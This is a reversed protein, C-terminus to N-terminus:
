YRQPLSEAIREVDEYLRSAYEFANKEEYLGEEHGKIIEKEVSRCCELIEEFNWGTFELAEDAWDLLSKKYMYFGGKAKDAKSIRKKEEDGIALIGCIYKYILLKKTSKKDKKKNDIYICNINKDM